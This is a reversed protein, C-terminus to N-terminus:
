RQQDCGTHHHRYGRGAARDGTYYEQCHVPQTRYHIHHRHGSWSINRGGGTADAAADGDFDVGFDTSLWNGQTWGSGVTDNKVRATVVFHFVKRGNFASLNWTLDQGSQTPAVSFDSDGQATASVFDLYTDLTDTVVTNEFQDTNSYVITLDYTLLEGVNATAKNVTKTVSYAATYANTEDHTYTCTSTGGADLCKGEVTAHNSLSGVGATANVTVQWTGGPAIPGPIAWTGTTGSWSGGQTDSIGSFGDGLVDTLTINSASADGENTLTIVWSVPSGETTSQQNPTMAIDLDPQAPNVTDSASTSLTNSCSDHYNYAVSNTLDPIPVDVDSADNAATTDCWTSGDGKVTFTITITEGPSVFDVNSSDWTLQQGSISPTCVFAAHTVNSPTNSATIGCAGSSDYAYGTPLTDVISDTYATGGTNTLTITVNGNCTTWGTDLITVQGTSFQPQTQLDVSDTASEAEATAPCCGWDAKATNTTVGSTCTNVTTRYTVTCSNGVPMDGIAAGSGFFDAESVGCTSTLSGAVLSTNSPLTDSLIVSSATYDGNSTYTVQWEVVDSSDASVESSDWGTGKTLNRAQKAVAVNPNVPVSTVIQSASATNGTGGANCPPDYEAHAEAQRNSSMFADAVSCDAVEVDFDVRLTSGPKLAPTSDANLPLVTGFDWTIQQRGGATITSITASGTLPGYGGTHTYSSTGAVLTVGPPLLEIIRSNFADVKGNNDIDIRFAADRLDCPDITQGNHYAVLLESQPLKVVASANVTDCAFGGCGWTLQGDIGLNTCGVVHIDMNLYEAVGPDIQDWHYVVTHDGANGTVSDPAASGNDMTYSGSYEVDSDLTITVDVNVMPGSGGNVIEIRDSENPSYAFVSVPNLRFTPSGDLMLIPASTDSTTRVPPNTGNECKNNYLGSAGWDTPSTSCNHAMRVTIIGQPQIDGNADPTHSALDWTYTGDGNNTPEFATLANGSADVIGTFSTTSVYTYNGRTDLTVTADYNIRGNGGITITFDREECVNLLAPTGGCAVTMASGEVTFGNSVDFQPSTGCQTGSGPVDLWSHVTYDGESNAVHYTYTVEITAGSNPANVQGSAMQATLPTLDLPFASGLAATMNAGDVIVSDISVFTFGAPTIENHLIINDWNSPAGTDFTYTTTFTADSCVDVPQASVPVVSSTNMIPTNTDPMFIGLSANTIVGPCGRCDDPVTDVTVNNSYTQFPACDDTPADMVVTYTVTEPSTTFSHTWTITAGNDTGGDANTVTFGSSLGIQTADPYDDTITATYPLNDTPGSFTVQITYTLGTDGVMASTPGSKTATVTPSVPAEMTWTQPGTVPNFYETGYTAGCENAYDPLFLLTASSAVSCGAAPDINFNFTLTNGAAIDPLTFTTTGANWTVGNTVNSVAWEAPWGQVQLTFNEAPGAGTSNDVTISATTGSCYPIQGPNNVTISIAPEHIVLAISTSGTHQVTNCNTVGDSWDVTVSNVLENLNCNSVTGTIRYVASGGTLISGTNWNVASGPTLAGPLNHGSPSTISVFSFGAGLTFATDAGTIMDGTGSNDITLVWTVNDGVSASTVTDGATDVLDVSMLPYTVTISSSTGTSAGSNFGASMTQGSGAACDPHAEFSFSANGGGATLSIGSWTLTHPPGTVETGGGAASVTFDDPITVVLTGGTVDSTGNNTVTVTWNGTQGVSLSTTEATFSTAIQASATVAGLMTVALILVWLRVIQFGKKRM